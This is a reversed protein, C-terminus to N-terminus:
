YAENESLAAAMKWLRAVETGTRSILFGGKILRRFTNLVHARILMTQLLHSM